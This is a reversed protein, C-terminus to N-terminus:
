HFTNQSQIQASRFKLGLIAQSILSKVKRLRLKSLSPKSHSLKIDFLILVFGSDCLTVIIILFLVHLLDLLAM